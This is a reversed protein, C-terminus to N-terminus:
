KLSKNTCYIKCQVFMEARICLVFSCRYYKGKKRHDRMGYPSSLSTVVYLCFLFSFFLNVTAVQGTVAFKCPWLNWLALIIILISFYFIALYFCVFLDFWGQWFVIATSCIHGGKLLQSHVWLLCMCFLCITVYGHAELGYIGDKGNVYLSTKLCESRLVPCKIFFFDEAISLFPHYDVAIAFTKEWVFVLWYM